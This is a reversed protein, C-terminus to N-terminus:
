ISTQGADLTEGLALCGASCRGEDERQGGGSFLLSGSTHADGRDASVPLSPTTTAPRPPARSCQLASRAPGHAVSRWWRRQRMSQAPKQAQKNDHSWHQVGLRGRDQASHASALSCAGEGWTPHRCCAWLGLVVVCTGVEDVTAVMCWFVPLSCLQTLEGEPGGASRGRQAWCSAPKAENHARVAVGDECGRAVNGVLDHAPPVQGLRATLPPPTGSACSGLTFENSARSGRRMPAASPCRKPRAPFSLSSALDLPTAQGSTGGAPRRRM